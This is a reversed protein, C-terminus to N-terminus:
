RAWTTPLGLVAAPAVRNLRVTVDFTSAPADEALFRLHGSCRPCTGIVRLGDASSAGYWQFCCDDCQVRPVPRM